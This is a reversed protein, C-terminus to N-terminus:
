KKAEPSWHQILTIPPANGPLETNILFRGDPAVDYNRGIQGGGGNVVGEFIPRAVPLIIHSLTEQNLQHM